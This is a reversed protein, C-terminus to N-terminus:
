KDKGSEKVPQRENTNISEQETTVRENLSDDASQEPNESNLRPQEETPQRVSMDDSRQQQSGEKDSPEVAKQKSATPNMPDQEEFSQRASKDDSRQETGVKRDSSEVDRQKDASPIASYQEEKSKDNTAEDVRVFCVRPHKMDRKDTVMKWKYQDRLRSKIVQLVENEPGYIAAFKSTKGEWLNTDMIQRIPMIPYVDANKQQIDLYQRTFVSAELTKDGKDQGYGFHNRIYSRERQSLSITGACDKLEIDMQCKKVIRTSSGLAISLDIRFGSATKELHARPSSRLSAQFNNELMSRISSPLKSKLNNICSQNDKPANEKLDFKIRIGNETSSTLWQFRGLCPHKRRARSLNKALYSLITGKSVNQPTVKKETCKPNGTVHIQGPWCSKEEDHPIDKKDESTFTGVSLCLKYNTSEIRLASDKLLDFTAWVDEQFRHHDKATLEREEGEKKETIGKAFSASSSLDKSKSAKSKQLDKQSLSAGSCSMLLILLLACIQRNIM